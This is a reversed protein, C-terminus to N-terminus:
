LKIDSVRNHLATLLVDCFQLSRDNHEFQALTPIM